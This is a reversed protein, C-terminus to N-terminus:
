KLGLMDKIKSKFPNGIEPDTFCSEHGKPMVFLYANEKLKKEDFKKIINDWKQQVDKSPQEPLGRTYVLVKIGARTVYDLFLILKKNDRLDKTKEYFASAHIIILSPKLDIVQQEMQWELNTAFPLPTVNLDKILNVIDVANSGKINRTHECYILADNHQDMIVVIRKVMKKYCDLWANFQEEPVKVEDMQKTLADKLEKDLIKNNNICGKFSLDFLKKGSISLNAAIDACNKAETIVKDDVKNSLIRFKEFYPSCGYCKNYVEPHCLDAASLLRKPGCGSIMILTIAAIVTAISINKM